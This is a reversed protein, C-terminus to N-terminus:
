AGSSKVAKESAVVLAAAGDSLMSANGATVTGDDKFSPKLKALSESTSDPRIVEDRTILKAKAGAGVTVPMVEANFLGKDWAIAARQHSQAAFRDQDLRSVSCQDAIHEAAEGM